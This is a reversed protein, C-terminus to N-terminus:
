NYYIKDRIITFSYKKGVKEAARRITASLAQLGANTEVLFDGKSDNLFIKSRLGKKGFLQNEIANGIIAIDTDNGNEFKISAIFSKM